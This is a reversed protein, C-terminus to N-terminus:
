CEHRDNFGDLGKNADGIFVLEVAVVVQGLHQLTIDLLAEFLPRRPPPADPAAPARLCSALQAPWHNAKRLAPVRPSAAASCSSLKWCTCCPSSWARPYAM